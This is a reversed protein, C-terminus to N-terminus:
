ERHNQRQSGQIPRRAKRIFLGTLNIAEELSGGGDRRLDVVLGEIGEEKLRSLLLSVDETTSKPEGNGSM